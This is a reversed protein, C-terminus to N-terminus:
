TKKRIDSLRQQMGELQTTKFQLTSHLEATGLLDRTQQDGAEVFSQLLTADRIQHYLIFYNEVDSYKRPRKM